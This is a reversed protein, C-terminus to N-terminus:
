KLIKELAGIESKTLPIESTKVPIVKGRIRYGYCNYGETLIRDLSLVGSVYKSNECTEFLEAAEKVDGDFMGGKIWCIGIVLPFNGWLSSHQDCKTSIKDKIKDVIEDKKVWNDFSKEYRYHVDPSTVEIYIDRDEIKVKFEPKSSEVKPNFDINKYDNNVFAKALELEAITDHYQTSNKLANVTSNTSFYPELVYLCNELHNLIANDSVETIKKISAIYKIGLNSTESYEHELERIKEQYVVARLLNSYIYHDKNELIWKETFIKKITPFKELANRVVDADRDSLM